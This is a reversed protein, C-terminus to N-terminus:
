PTELNESFSYEKDYIDRFEVIIKTLPAAAGTETEFGVMEENVSLIKKKFKKPCGTIDDDVGEKVIRIDTVIMPGLGANKVIIQFIKGTRRIM